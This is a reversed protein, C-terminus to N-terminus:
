NLKNSILGMLLTSEKTESTSFLYIKTANVKGNSQLVGQSM